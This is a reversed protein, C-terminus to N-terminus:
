ETTIGLNNQRYETPIRTNNQKPMDKAVVRPLAFPPGGGPFNSFLRLDNSVLLNRVCGGGGRVPPVWPEGNGGIPPLGGLDKSLALNCRATNRSGM